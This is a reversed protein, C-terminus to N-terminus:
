GNRQKMEMSNDILSKPQNAAADVLEILRQATLNSWYELSAFGTNINSYLRDPVIIKGDFTKQHNPLVIGVLGHQKLLTAKIEWDVYKREHTQAGILVVTCSTGTIFTDRIRQMVYRVDDSDIQRELSNDFVAEYHDHFHQSFIDYYAQDGGHHYSVFIKRRTLVSSGLLGLVRQSATYDAM